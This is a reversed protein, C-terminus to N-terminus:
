WAPASGYIMFKICLSSKLRDKGAGDRKSPMTRRRGDPGPSSGASATAPTAASTRARCSTAEGSCRTLELAAGAHEPRAAVRSGHATRASCTTGSVLCASSIHSRRARELSIHGHNGTRNSPLESV